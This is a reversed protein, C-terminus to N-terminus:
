LQSFLELKIKLPYKAPVVGTSQTLDYKKKCTITKLTRLDHPESTVKVADNTHIVTINYGSYKSHPM